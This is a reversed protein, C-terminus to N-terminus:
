DPVIVTVPPVNDSIAPSTGATLPIGTDVPTTAGSTLTALDHGPNPYAIQYGGPIATIAPSTSAALALGTDHSTGDAAITILHDTSAQHVAIQFGGGSAAAIAPSTGAAVTIGGGPQTPTGGAAMQRLQGDSGTYAIKYGGAALAAIGPSTGA